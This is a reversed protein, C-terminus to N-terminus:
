GKAKVAANRRRPRGNPVAFAGMEAIPDHKVPHVRIVKGDPGSLQVSGAVVAVNVSKRAWARGASYTVGAFSVHGSADAIRTVM